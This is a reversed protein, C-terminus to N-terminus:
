VGRDIVCSRRRVGWARVQERVEVLGWRAPPAAGGPLSERGAVGVRAYARRRLPRGPGARRHRAVAMALHSRGVVGPRGTANYLYRAQQSPNALAGSAAVVTDMEPARASSARGASGDTRRYAYRTTQGLTARADRTKPPTAM